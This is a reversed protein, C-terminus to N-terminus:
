QNDFSGNRYADKYSPEDADHTALFPRDKDEYARRNAQEKQYQCHYIYQCENISQVDYRANGLGQIRYYSPKMYAPKPHTTMM